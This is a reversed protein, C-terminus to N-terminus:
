FRDMAHIHPFRRPFLVELLTVSEDPVRNPLRALLDSTEFAGLALRALTEQPLEAVLDVGTPAPDLSVGEPAIGLRSEGEETRILLTGVFGVRARRLRESLEPQVQRILRATDLVRAMFEGEWSYRAVLIGGAYAAAQAMLGEPPFILEVPRNAGTAERAWLQVAAIMADAAQWDRAMAEGIHFSGPEHRERSQVWWGGRGLWAYGALDGSADLLIRCADNDTGTEVQALTEWPRESVKRANANGAVLAALGPSPEADLRRMIAGTARLTNQEYLAMVDPLDSVAFDRFAWGEPLLPPPGDEGQLLVMYEPGCTAYGFKPYYNPIGYLTTLVADGARMVDVAAELVRRSYGRNRHEEPTAVGGIGDMRVVAAGIRMLLPIVLTRSLHEGRAELRVEKWGNDRDVAVVQTGDPFERM